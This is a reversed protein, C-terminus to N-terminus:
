SGGKGQRVGTQSSTVYRALAIIQDGDQYLTVTGSKSFGNVKYGLTVGFTENPQVLDVSSISIGKELLEIILHELKM